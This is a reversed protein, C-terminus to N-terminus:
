GKSGGVRAAYYGDGSSTVEVPADFADSLHDSTLVQGKPGDRFVRGQRLLIVREIEPFIESVRHTTLVVTKDQRAIQRLTESFRRRAVLDLGTTPEDLLLAEPDPALARAILVRRAEGTSMQGIPKEALHDVEMLALASRSQARITETVEHHPFLRRSAFFAATVLDLAEADANRSIYQEQLSASVVGLHKRLEFVDWQERGFVRVRAPKEEGTHPRRRYTLLDILSSKGAGNPGLIVTHEGPPIAFSIDRLIRRGGAMLTANRMDLVPTLRGPIQAAGPKDSM